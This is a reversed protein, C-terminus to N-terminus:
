NRQWRDETEKKKGKGLSLLPVERPGKGRAVDTTEEM